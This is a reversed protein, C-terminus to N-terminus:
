FKFNTAQHLYHLIPNIKGRAFWACWSYRKVKTTMLSEILTLIILRSSRFIVASFDISGKLDGQDMQVEKHKPRSPILKILLM